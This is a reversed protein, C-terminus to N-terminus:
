DRFIVALNDSYLGLMFDVDHRYHDHHGRYNHGYHNGHDYRRHSPHGHGHYGSRKHHRSRDKYGHKNGKRYSHWNGYDARHGHDRHGGRQSAKGRDQQYHGYQGRNSDGANAILPSCMLGLSLLAILPLQNYKSHLKM